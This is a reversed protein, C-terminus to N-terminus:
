VSPVDEAFFSPLVSRHRDKLIRTKGFMKNGFEKSISKQGMMIEILIDENEVNALISCEKPGLVGSVTGTNYIFDIEHWM